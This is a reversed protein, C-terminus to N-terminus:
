KELLLTQIKIVLLSSIILDHAFSWRKILGIQKIVSVLEIAWTLFQQLRSTSFSCYELCILDIGHNNIAQSRADGPWWCGHYQTYLILLDKDEVSFSKLHRHWCLTSFYNFICIYRLTKLFINLMAHTLIEKLAKSSTAGWTIFSPSLPFTVTATTPSPNHKKSTMILLPAPAASARAGPM